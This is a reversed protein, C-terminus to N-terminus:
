MVNELKGHLLFRDETGTGTCTSLTVVKDEATLDAGTDYIAQNCVIYLFDRISEADYFSYTYVVSGVKGVYCSVIRYEIMGDPTYIYFYPYQDFLQKDKYMKLSGFMTGNKMNHGYIITNTDTFDSANHCDMFISGSANKSGNFMHHLYYDNDSGQVIPYSIQLGPIQIWGVVDPNEKKLGEFDVKLLPMEEDESEETLINDDPNEEPEDVYDLLEEYTEEGKQYEWYYFYLRGISYGFIGLSILLILFLVCMTRKKM